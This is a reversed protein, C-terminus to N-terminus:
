RQLLCGANDQQSKHVAPRARERELLHQFFEEAMADADDEIDVFDDTWPADDWAAEDPKGDIRIPTRARYCVYGKPHGPAAAVPPAATAERPDNCMMINNFGEMQLITRLLRTHMEQDDVILIRAASSDVKM